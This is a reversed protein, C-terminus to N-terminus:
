RSGATCTGSPPRRAAILSGTGGRRGPATRGATSPRLRRRHDSVDGASQHHDDRQPDADQEDGESQDVGNRTAREVGPRQAGGLRRREELLAVPEVLRQPTLEEVVQAAHEVAIEALRHDAAADVDAVGKGVPDGHRQREAQACQRDGDDDADGEPDDGRHTGIAPEIVDQHEAGRQGVGDGREHEPEDESSM